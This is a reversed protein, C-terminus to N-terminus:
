KRGEGGGRKKYRQNKQSQVNNMTKGPNKRTNLDNGKNRESWKGHKPAGGFIAVKQIGKYAPIKTTTGGVSQKGRVHATQDGSSRATIPGPPAQARQKRRKDTPTAKSPKKTLSNTKPSPFPNKKGEGEKQAYGKEQTTHQHPTTNPRLHREKSFM